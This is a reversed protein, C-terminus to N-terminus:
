AALAFYRKDFIYADELVVSLTLVQAGDTISARAVEVYPTPNCDYRDSLSGGGTINGFMEGWGGYYNLYEQFDNYHNYTYFVYRENPDVIKDGNRDFRAYVIRAAGRTITTGNNYIQVAYGNGTDTGTTGIDMEYYELFGGCGSIDPLEPEYPYKTTSGSFRTHNVRLYIGWESATPKTKKSESHNAPVDGFAYVYAAVEELTIYAGGYHVKFVPKGYADVVTYTKGNNSFYTDTNRILKGDRTPQYESVTPVEDPVDLMGSMFGYLTRYYSDEYTQAPTYNAYFEEDTMSSYLADYDIDSPPDTENEDVPPKGDTISEATSESTSETVSEPTSESGNDNPLDCAVLASSIMLLALMLALLKKFNM